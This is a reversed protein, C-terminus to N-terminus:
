SSLQSRGRGGEEVPGAPETALGAQPRNPTGMPWNGRPPQGQNHSRGWTPPAERATPDPSPPPQQPRWRPNRPLPPPRLTGRRPTARGEQEGRGGRETDTAGGVAPPTAPRRHCRRSHRSCSSIGTLLRLVPAGELPPPASPTPLQPPGQASPGYDSSLARPRTPPRSPAMPSPSSRPSPGSGPSKPLSSNSLSAAPPRQPNRVGLETPLETPDEKLGRGM